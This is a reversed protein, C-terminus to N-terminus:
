VKQAINIIEHAIIEAARDNINPFTETEKVSLLKPNEFFTKIKELLIESNFYNEEIIEALGTKRVLEANKQQEQHSSWPIPILLCPKKLLM